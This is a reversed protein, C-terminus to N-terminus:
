QNGPLEFLVYVSVSRVDRKPVWTSLRSVLERWSDSFDEPQADFHVVIRHDDGSWGSLGRSLKGNPLECSKSECVGWDSKSFTKGQVLFVLYPLFELNDISEVKDAVQFLTLLAGTYLTGGRVEFADIDGKLLCPSSVRKGAKQYVLSATRGDFNFM